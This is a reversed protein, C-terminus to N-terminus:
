QGDNIVWEGSRNNGKRSIIGKKSLLRMYYKVTNVDMELAAAIRSQSIRSDTRILDIIKIETEFLEPIIEITM